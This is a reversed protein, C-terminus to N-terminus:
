DFPLSTEESCWSEKGTVDITFACTANNGSYDIADCVVGTKGIRFQKGSEISCTLTLSSGSNDSCEPGDWVALATSQNLPTQLTQNAPCICTPAECDLFSPFPFTQNFHVVTKYISVTLM